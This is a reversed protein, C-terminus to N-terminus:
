DNSSATGVIKQFDAHAGPVGHIPVHQAVDLKLRQINRNLTTMNPTLAPAPQGGAAPSYLDANILIKETPLYALLMTGAHNLNTVPHLELTRKGDSLVYRQDVTEIMPPAGNATRMYFTSFRDPQLYRPVPYFFVDEFFDKNSHHTVVVSGHALYTRLGGSHDFHHHTNVVYRIPKSPVLKTVEDIVAISREENQPAEVVAVFNSFEVAVSNHSGGGILWVGDALRTSQIRVPPITATRVADPVPIAPAAFNPKVDSVRVELIDHGFDLYRNGSHYHMVTPFKVGGFDKYVTYRVEYLMDGLIPNPVRTQVGELENAANIQGMMKYKGQTFAIATVTKTTNMNDESETRRLATLDTAAMAAKLFGHPTLWIELQRQEAAAPAPNANEGQVNWAYNGSVISVTRPEGQIPVGGGGRAPNNGQRRTYEERSTKAEYDITRTYTVIDTRPWNEGPAFSQGFAGFWGGNGTYQISKVSAVGLHASAAQVVARADQAVAMNATLALLAVLVFFRKAM